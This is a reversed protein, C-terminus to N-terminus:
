HTVYTERAASSEPPRADGLPPSGLPSRQTLAGLDREAGRAGARNWITRLADLLLPTM